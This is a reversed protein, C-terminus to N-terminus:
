KRRWMFVLVLALGGVALMTTTPTLFSSRAAPAPREYTTQPTQGASATLPSAPQVYSNARIQAAIASDPNQQAYAMAAALQPNMFPM